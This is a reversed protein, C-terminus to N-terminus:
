WGVPLGVPLGVPYFGTYETGQPHYRAAATSPYEASVVM